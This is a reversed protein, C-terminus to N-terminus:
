HGNCRRAVRRVTLAAALIGAAAYLGVGGPPGPKNPPQMAVDPLAGSSPAPSAAPPATPVTAPLVVVEGTMAPHPTCLYAYTGPMSFTFSYSQGQELAGSDFVGSTSTATHAVADANTWTVTDGATITISPPHFAFDVIEVQHTTGGRIASPPPVVSGVIALSLCTALLVIRRSPGM